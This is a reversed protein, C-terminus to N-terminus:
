RAEAPIPVTATDRGSRLVRGPHHGLFEQGRVIECGNVLVHRIGTADAYLRSAGAPLDRRTHVPGCGITAPDFVTIDAWNGIALAGREKVGYLRAPVSTLQRVAEELGILGRERVGIRLFDPASAFTDIMDLHAGADSAGVITRDDKWLNARIQWSEDDTGRMPIALSTKLNDEIVIDLLADFPQKGQSAAIEGIKRGEFHKLQPALVEAVSWNEWHGIPSRKGTKRYHVGQDLRARLAPDRLAERREDLSLRMLDEWGPFSDLVFGSVFNVWSQAPKVGVLAVIRAGREAAYDSASMQQQWLYPTKSDPNLVNWNVSRGAALSMETMIHKHHDRMASGEPIFELSTGPHDRLVRALEILEEDTAHRSPVPHGEADNHTPSTTSSFGIGGEALSKGLLRKMAELDQPTAPEGVARAGMVARRLASHGVMFATNLALKGEIGQLYEGFSGWDWPVGARLSEIPMGEVRALMRALYEADERNGNLPAISFGCNGGVITTVGHYCSPSLSRDWFLQADYHTHIDVFGPAVVCGEADITERAPSTVKDLEVIRGNRIGVDGRRAATGSGDIILGNVIKLDLQDAM